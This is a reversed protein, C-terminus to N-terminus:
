YRGYFGYTRFPIVSSTAAGSVRSLVFSKAEDLCTTVTADMEVNRADAMASALKVINSYGAENTVSATVVRTIGADIIYDGLLMMDDYSLEDEHGSRNDLIAFYSSTPNIKLSRRYVPVRHERSIPGLATMLNIYEGCFERTEYSINAFVGSSIKRGQM